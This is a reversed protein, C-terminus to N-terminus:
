DKIQNYILSRLFIKLPKVSCDLYPTEAQTTGNRGDNVKYTHEQENEWLSTSVKVISSYRILKNPKLKAVFKLQCIETM